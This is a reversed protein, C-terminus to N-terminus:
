TKRTSALLSQLRESAREGAEEPPLEALDDSFVEAGVSPQAGIDDLTTLLGPLDFSGKGPLMRHHMGDDILSGQPQSHADSIQLVYIKEPRISRLLDDDPSGRFYHWTDLVLGGNPREARRVMEWASKLDPIGSYPQFELHVRLGQGAARDCINAFSEAGVAVPVENGFFEILSISEAGLAGVMDFVEEIEFDAFALDEESTSEPPEWEPLWKTLPDIVAVRVGSEAIRRRMDEDSLGEERANKYDLPFMSVSKFGGAKAAALREDFSAGMVTGSWLRLDGSGIRM